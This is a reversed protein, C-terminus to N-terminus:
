FRKKLIKAPIGGYICNKKVNKTVVSGAAIISNDEITVNKLITSNAGIWVNNGINIIGGIHGQTNINKNNDSFIHDAARILVNHGILVDDKIIIKGDEASLIVNQNISNNRGIKLLGNQSHLNCNKMITTNAGITINKFGEITVNNHIFFKKSSANLFFPYIIQRIFMGHYGIFFKVIMKLISILDEKIYSFIKIQINM